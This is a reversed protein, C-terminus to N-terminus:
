TIALLPAEHQLDTIEQQLMRAKEMEEWILHKNRAQM